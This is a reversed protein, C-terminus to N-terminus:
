EETSASFTLCPIMEKCFDEKKDNIYKHAFAGFYRGGFSLGFGIFAKLASPSELQKANNYDEKHILKYIITKSYDIPTRPM